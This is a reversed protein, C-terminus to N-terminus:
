STLEIKDENCIYIRVVHRSRLLMVIVNLAIGSETGASSTKQAVFFVVSVSSAISGDTSTDATDTFVLELLVILVVGNSTTVGKGAFFIAMVLSLGFLTGLTVDGNTVLDLTGGLFGFALEGAVLGLNELALSELIL